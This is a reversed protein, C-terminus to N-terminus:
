SPLCYYCAMQQLNLLSPHSAEERNGKKGQMWWLRSSPHLGVRDREEESGRLGKRQGFKSM